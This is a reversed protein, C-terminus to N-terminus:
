AIQESIFSPSFSDLLHVIIHVPVDMRIIRLPNHRHRDPKYFLIFRIVKDASDLYFVTVAEDVCPAPMNHGFCTFLKRHYACM